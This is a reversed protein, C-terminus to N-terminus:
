LINYIELVAKLYCHDSYEWDKDPIIRESNKPLYDNELYNLKVRLKDSPKHLLMIHDIWGSFKKNTIFSITSTTNYKEAMTQANVPATLKFEPCGFFSDQCLFSGFINVPKFNFFDMKKVPNTATMIKYETTNTDINFDGALITADTKKYGKLLFRWNRLILVQMLAVTNINEKSIFPKLHCGIISINNHIGQLVYHHGTLVTYFPELFNIAEELKQISSNSFYLQKHKAYKLPNSNKIIAWILLGRLAQISPNTDEKQLIDDIVIDYDITDVKDFRRALWKIMDESIESNTCEYLWKALSIIPPIYTEIKVQNPASSLLRLLIQCISTTNLNSTCNNLVNQIPAQTKRTNNGTICRCEQGASVDTDQDPPLLQKGASNFTGITLTEM